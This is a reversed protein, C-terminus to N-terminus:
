QFKLEMSLYIAFQVINGDCDIMYSIRRQFEPTAKHRHYLRVLTFQNKNSLSLKDNLLTVGAIESGNESRDVQYNRRPKGGHVWAGNDDARLDDICHM